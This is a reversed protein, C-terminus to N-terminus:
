ENAEPAPEEVVSVVEAAVDAKSPADKKVSQIAREPHDESKLSSRVAFEITKEEEVPVLYSPVTLVRDNVVVHRHTIFQRAQSITRALGRKFVITQLRRELIDDLKIALVDEIQADGKLLNYRKLKDLLQKQEISAQPDHRTILEKAQDSYKKLMSSMKWIETKNKFGYKKTLEREAEIRAKQWPHSPRSYKRRHKIPDGM